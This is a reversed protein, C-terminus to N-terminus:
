TYFRFLLPTLDKSIQKVVLCTLMIGLVWRDLYDYQIDIHYWKTLWFRTIVDLFDSDWLWSSKRDALGCHQLFVYCVRSGVALVLKEDTPGFKDFIVCNILHFINYNLINLIQYLCFHLSCIICEAATLVRLLGCDFIPFWTGSVASVHYMHM